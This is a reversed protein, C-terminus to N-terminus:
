MADPQHSSRSKHGPLPEPRDSRFADDAPAISEGNMIATHESSPPMKRSMVKMSQATVTAGDVVCCSVRDLTPNLWAGCRAEHCPTELTGVAHERLSQM